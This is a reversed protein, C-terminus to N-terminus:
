TQNISCGLICLCVFLVLRTSTWRTCLRLKHWTTLLLTIPRICDPTIRHTLFCLLLCRSSTTWFTHFCSLHITWIYTWPCWNTPTSGITFLIVASVCYVTSIGRTFGFITTICTSPTSPCRRTIAITRTSWVLSRTGYYIAWTPGLCRLICVFGTIMALTCPTVPTVPGSPTRCLTISSAVPISSSSICYRFISCITSSCAWMFISM